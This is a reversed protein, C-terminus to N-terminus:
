ARGARRPASPRCRRHDEVGGAVRNSHYEALKAVVEDGLATELEPLTWNVKTKIDV